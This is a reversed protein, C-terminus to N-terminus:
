KGDVTKVSKIRYRGGYSQDVAASIVSLIAPDIAGAAAAAKKLRHSGLPAPTGSLAPFRRFLLGVLACVIALALLTAMVVGFGQLLFSISEGIPPHAELAAALVHNTFLFSMNESDSALNELYARYVGKFFFLLNAM